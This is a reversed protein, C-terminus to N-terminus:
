NQSCFITKNICEKDRETLPMILFGCQGTQVFIISCLIVFGSLARVKFYKGVTATSNASGPM